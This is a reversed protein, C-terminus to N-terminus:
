CIAVATVMLVAEIAISNTLMSEKSMLL